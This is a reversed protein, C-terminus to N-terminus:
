YKGWLFAYGIPDFSFTFSSNFQFSGKIVNICKVFEIFVIKLVKATTGL